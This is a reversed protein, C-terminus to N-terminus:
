ELFSISRWTLYVMGHVGQRYYVGADFICQTFKIMVLNAHLTDNWIKSAQKLGYLGKLLRCVRDTGDHYGEPQEMYIDVDVLEGNLFATVFDVHRRDLGLM